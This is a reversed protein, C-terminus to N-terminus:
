QFIAKKEIDPPLQINFKNLNEKNFYYKTPRTTVKKIEWPRKNNDLIELVMKAADGGHEIGTLVKAGVFKDPGVSHPITGFVPIPSHRGTWTLIEPEPVVTDTDRYKVTYWNEVILADYNQISSLVAKKWDDYYSHRQWEIINGDFPISKKGHLTIELHAETTQSDDFLILFKKSRTPVLTKIMRGLPILMRRELVGTVNDPLKYGYFYSRPNANVGYFVIPTDMKGFAPALYKLANDDATMILDPNKVHLQQLVDDAIQQHEIKPRQKTNMYIISIDHRNGIINKIGNICDITWENEPHYSAVILVEKANASYCSISWLLIGIFIHCLRYKM